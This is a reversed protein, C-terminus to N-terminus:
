RQVAAVAAARLMRFGFRSIRSKEMVADQLHDSFQLHDVADRYTNHKM